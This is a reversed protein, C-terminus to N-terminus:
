KQVSLNNQLIHAVESRESIINSCRHSNSQKIGNYRYKSFMMNDIFNKFYDTLPLQNSKYFM